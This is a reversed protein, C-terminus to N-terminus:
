NTSSWKAGERMVSPIGRPRYAVVFEEDGAVAAPFFLLLTALVSPARTFSFYNQFHTIQLAFKSLRFFTRQLLFGPWGLCAYVCVRLLGRCRTLAAAGGGM